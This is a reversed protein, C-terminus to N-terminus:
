LLLGQSVREIVAANFRRLRVGHALMAPALFQDFPIIDDQRAEMLRQEHDVIM